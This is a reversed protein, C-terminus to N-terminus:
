QKGRKLLARLTEGPMPWVSVVEWGLSGLTDLPLRAGDVVCDRGNTNLIVSLYQWRPTLSTIEIDNGPPIVVSRPMITM